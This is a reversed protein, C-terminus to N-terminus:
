LDDKDKKKSDKAQKADISAVLINALQEVATDIVESKDKKSTQPKDM